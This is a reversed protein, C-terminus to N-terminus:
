KHAPTKISLKKIINEELKDITRTHLIPIRASELAQDVFNDRQQRDARDHTADDLEIILVPNIKTSDCLVFDVHKQIIKNLSAQRNESGKLPEILDALRVKSLLMLKNKTAIPYLAKYFILENKTLLNRKQYKYESKNQPPSGGILGFALILFIVLVGIITLIIITTTSM